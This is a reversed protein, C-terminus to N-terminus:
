AHRGDAAPARPPAIRAARDRAGKSPQGAIRGRAALREAMLANSREVERVASTYRSIIAHFSGVVIAIQAYPVLFYGEINVLNQQLLLDYVGLYTIFFVWAALGIAETARAQWSARLGAIAVLNALLFMVVYLIFASLTPELTGHLLPCTIIGLVLTSVGVCWNIARSPRQHMAALFLHVIGIMWLLSNVTLWGFWSDSIPLRELGMYNHMVRLFNVVSMLFFLAYLKEERRSLWFFLAFFGCVLFAASIIYPLDAQFFSRVLYPLGVDQFNGIWMSSLAGGTGRLHQLRLVIQEVPETETTNDFAIRLPRNSGNWLLNAHSQYQLQGNIYIALEGDSKWRPIYLYNAESPRVARPLDVRYWSTQTPLAAPDSTLMTDLAPVSANPLAVPKWEGAMAEADIHAPPLPYNDSAEVLITAGTLHIGRPTFALHLILVLLATGLAALGYLRLLRSFEM